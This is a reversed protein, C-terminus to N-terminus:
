KTSVIATYYTLENAKKKSTKNKKNATPSTTRLLTYNM